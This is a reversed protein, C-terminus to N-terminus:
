CRNGRVIRFLTVASLATLGGLAAGAIVRGLRSRHHHGGDRAATGPVAKKRHMEATVDAPLLNATSSQLKNRWGTVVDGTGQMMAAFGQRAVFAPDDKEETAIRTEMM